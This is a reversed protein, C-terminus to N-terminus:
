SHPVATEQLPFELLLVAREDLFDVRLGLGTPALHRTVEALLPRLPDIALGDISVAIAAGKAGNEHRLEVHVSPALGNSTSADLLHRRITAFTERITDPHARVMPVPALARRSEDEGPLPHARLADHLVEALDVPRLARPAQRMGRLREAILRMRDMQRLIVDVGTQVDDLRGRQLHMRALEARGSIIGLHNNLDHGIEAAVEGFPRVESEDRISM